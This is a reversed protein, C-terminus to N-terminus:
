RFKRGGLEGIERRIQSLCLIYVYYITPSASGLIVLLTGLLVQVTIKHLKYRLHLYLLYLSPPSWTIVYVM